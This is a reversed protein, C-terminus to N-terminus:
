EPKRGGFVAFVGYKYFCDVDKYGTDRLSELQDDLTDPRNDDSERYRRIIDDFCCGGEMGMSAKKEDMWEQWLKMYWQELAEAPAIVVDMNLFYGGDYLHSYIMRFFERKEDTTLHHIALSSVIFDFKGGLIDKELIEQFSARIFRVNEIGRLREGAKDLMDESGDVLTASISADLALLEHAIIGDGCGLDMIEKHGGDMLFHRYFSKMIELMRRREIIYIDANERYERTFGPDAWRSRSFERM